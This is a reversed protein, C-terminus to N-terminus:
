DDIVDFANGTVGPGYPDYPEFPQDWDDHRKVKRAIHLRGDSTANRVELVQDRMLVKEGDWSASTVRMKCDPQREIVITIRDSTALAVGRKIMEDRWHNRTLIFATLYGCGFCFVGFAAVIIFQLLESM